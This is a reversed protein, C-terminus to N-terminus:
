KSREWCCRTGRWVSALCLSWHVETGFSSQHVHTTPYQPRPPLSWTSPLLRSTSGLGLLPSFCGALLCSRACPRTNRLQLDRCLPLTTAEHATRTVNAALWGGDVHLLKCTKQLSYLGPTQSTSLIHQNRAQQQANLPSTGMSLGTTIDSSLM